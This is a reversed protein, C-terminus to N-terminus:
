VVKQYNCFKNQMKVKWFTKFNWKKINTHWIKILNQNKLIIQQKTINTYIYVFNFNLWLFYYWNGLIILLFYMSQLIIDKYKKSENSDRELIQSIFHQRWNTEVAMKQCLKNIQKPKKTQGCSKGEKDSWM